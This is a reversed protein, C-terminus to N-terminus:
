SGFIRCTQGGTLKQKLTSSWKIKEDDYVVFDDISERESQESLNWKIFQENYTDITRKINENLLTDRNFNYSGRMVTRVLM